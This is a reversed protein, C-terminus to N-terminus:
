HNKDFSYPIMCDDKAIKVWDLRKGSSEVNPAALRISCAKAPSLLQLSKIIFIAVIQILWNKTSNPDNWSRVDSFSNLFDTTICQTKFPISREFATQCDVLKLLLRALTENTNLRKQLQHCTRQSRHDDTGISSDIFFRLIKWYQNMPFLLPFHSIM